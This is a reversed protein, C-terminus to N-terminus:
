PTITFQWDTSTTGLARGRWQGRANAYEGTGGVIPGYFYKKAAFPLLGQADIQGGPLAFVVDPCNYLGAAVNVLFCTGSTHGVITKTGPKVLADDWVLYDGQSPGAAGTDVSGDHTFLEVVHVTGGAGASSGIAVKAVVLGLVAALLLAAAIARRM